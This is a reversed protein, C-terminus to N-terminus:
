EFDSPSIHQLGLYSGKILRNKDGHGRGSSLYPVPFCRVSKRLAWIPSGAVVIAQGNDNYKNAHTTKRNYQIACPFALLHSCYLLILLHGLRFHNCTDLRRDAIWGIMRECTRLVCDRNLKLKKKKQNKGV